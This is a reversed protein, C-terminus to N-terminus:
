FNGAAVVTVIDSYDSGAPTVATIAAREIMTFTDGNATGRGNGDVGTCHSIPQYDKSFTGGQTTGTGDYEPMTTASCGNAADVTNVDLVYGEAGGSGGALTSPTGDVTGATAITYNATTSYLGQVNNPATGGSRDTNRAWAIWGGKANTTVTATIGGTSTVAGTAASLPSSFADTNGSLSFSFTPPVTASVTIQDDSITTLAIFTQDIVVSGSDQTEITAQEGGTGSTSSSATTITASSINFCYLNTTTLNSSAFTARKNGSTNTVAGSGPATIGPWATAGAPLNTTSVSWNAVTTDLSFSDPFLISVKDETGAGASSASACVLAGTATSVKMRDLRVYAQGLSTAFAASPVLQAFVSLTLGVAVIIRYAPRDSWRLVIGEIV